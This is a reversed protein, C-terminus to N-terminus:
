LPQGPRSKISVIIPRYTSKVASIYEEIDFRLVM